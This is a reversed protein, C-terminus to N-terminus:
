AFIVPLIVQIEGVLFVCTFDDGHTNVCRTVDFLNEELRKEYMCWMSFKCIKTDPPILKDATNADSGFWM